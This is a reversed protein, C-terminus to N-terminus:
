PQGSDFAKGFGPAGESRAGSIEGGFRGDLATVGAANKFGKATHDDFNWLAVTNPETGVRPGPTGDLKIAGRTLRVDDLLGDFWRAGVGSGYEAFRLPVPVWRVRAPAPATQADLKGDIYVRLKGGAGESVCAVHCWKEKPVRGESTVTWEREGDNLRLVVRGKEVLMVEWGRGRNDSLTHDYKSLLRPAEKYRRVYVRFDVSFKADEFALAPHDPVHASALFCKTSMGSLMFGTFGDLDLWERDGVGSLFLAADHKACVPAYVEAIDERKTRMGIGEEQSSLYGKQKDTLKQNPYLWKGSIVGVVLGDVLKEGVWTEWDLYLNGYPPGIYRGRPIAALVKKGSPLAARLDRFLQTLNEGRLRRWQELDFDEKLIDIGHRQQYAQVVPENFGYRDAREAPPSHSRTCVYLGDFDYKDIFWKLQAVKYRRAEAYGYELVGWHRKTRTRDTALYEPHAITFKSQWPFPTSHGYLVTPPCGEDFICLYAYIKLGKAHAAEVAVKVPDFESFIRRTVQWYRSISKAYRVYDRELTIGSVRWFIHGAGLHKKWLGMATRIKEPTDLRATKEYIMIHDGWSVNVGNGGPPVTESGLANLGVALAVSLLLAVPRVM